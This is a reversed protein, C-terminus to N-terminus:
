PRNQRSGTKRSFPQAAGVPVYAPAQQPRFAPCPCGRRKRRRRKEQDAHAASKTSRTPFHSSRLRHSQRWGPESRCQTGRGTPDAARHAHRFMRFFLRARQASRVIQMRAQTHSPPDRPKARSRLPARPKPAARRAPGRKPMTRCNAIDSGQRHGARYKDSPFRVSCFPTASCLRSRPM